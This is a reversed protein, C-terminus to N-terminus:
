SIWSSFAWCIYEKSSTMQVIITIALFGGSSNADNFFLGLFYTDGVRNQYRDLVNSIAEFHGNSLKSVYKFNPNSALENAIEQGKNRGEYYMSVSYPGESTNVITSLLETGLAFLSSTLVFFCILFGTRKM